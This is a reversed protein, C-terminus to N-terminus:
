IMYHYKQGHIVMILLDGYVVLMNELVLLLKINVQHQYPYQTGYVLLDVSLHQHERGHLGM